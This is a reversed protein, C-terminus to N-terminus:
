FFGGAGAMGLPSLTDLQRLLKEIKRHASNTQRVILRGPVAKIYAGERRWSEPEVLATVIEVLDQGPIPAGLGGSFGGFGGGGFQGLANPDPQKAEGDPDDSKEGPQPALPLALNYIVLRLSNPDANAAVGDKGKMPAQERLQTLLQEIFGHIEATQSIVLLGSGALQEMSGPGGVEDWTEIAISSTITTMLDDLPPSGDGDASRDRLDAVPYVRPELEVEAEEPTTVLLTEDLVVWTLDLPRLLHALAQNAPMESVALSMPTNTSLGVDDLAKTDIRAQVDLEKRLIEPLKKLPTESLDLSVPKKLAAYIADEASNALRISAQKPPAALDETALVSGKRIADLLLAIQRHVVDMQSVVLTNRYVGISAPGGVGDWTQPAITSTIAQMLSDGASEDQEEGPSAILDGVEYVKTTLRSEAEEPTTIVLAGDQVIWTLDLDRLLVNLVSRFSIERLEATIPADDSLGVDEMAKRDILLNIKAQERLQQVVNRLPTEVVSLSTKEDMANQIRAALPDAAGTQPRSKQDEKEQAIAFPAAVLLALISLVASPATKLRVM